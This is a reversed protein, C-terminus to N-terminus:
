GRSPHPFRAFSATEAVVTYAVTEQIGRFALLACALRYGPWSPALADLEHELRERRRERELVSDIFEQFVIQQAPSPL